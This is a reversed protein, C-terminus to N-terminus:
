SRKARINHEGLQSARKNELVDGVHGEGVFCTSQTCMGYMNMHVYTLTRRQLALSCLLLLLLAFVMCDLAMSTSWAIAYM